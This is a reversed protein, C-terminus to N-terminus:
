RQRALWARANRGWYNDLHAITEMTARAQRNRGLQALAVAALFTREHVHNSGDPILALSDLADHSRQLSLLVRARATTTHDSKIQPPAARYLALAEDHRGLIRLTEMERPLSRAYVSTGRLRRFLAQAENFREERMLQLAKALVAESDQPPLTISPSAPPVDEAQQRPPQGHTSPGSERGTPRDRFPEIIDQHDDPVNPMVPLYDAPNIEDGHNAPAEQQELAALLQERSPLRALLQQDPDAAQSSPADPASDDAQGAGDRSEHHDAIIADDGTSPPGDQQPVPPLVIDLDEEPDTEGSTVAETDVTPAQASAIPQPDSLRQNGALDRARLRVWRAAPDITVTRTGHVGLAQEHDEWTSGDTSWQLIGPNRGPHMSRIAWALQLQSPHEDPDPISASFRVIDPRQTAIEIMDSNAPPTGSRPEPDSSGDHFHVCIRFGYRGDNRPRFRYRIDRLQTDEDLDIQRVLLWSRGLDNTQWFDVRKVTSLDLGPRQLRIPIESRNTIFVGDETTAAPATVMTLWSCVGILCLIAILRSIM